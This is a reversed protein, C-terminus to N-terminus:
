RSINVTDEFYQFPTPGPLGHGGVFWQIDLGLPILSDYFDVAWADFQAPLQFPLGPNYVDSMFVTDSDPLYAILNDGAHVNPVSIIRVVNNSDSIEIEGAVPVVEISTERPHIALRDPQVTHPANLIERLNDQVGDATIVTAGAAAYSRVGGIHDHHFHTAVVYRFPKAPWLQKASAIIADSRSNYLVPDFLVLFEDMEVILSNHSGGVVHFVNEGVPLFQVTFPRSQDFDFPVGMALMRAFWQSSRDGWAFQDPEFPKILTEPIAFLSDALPENFSIETRTEDNIITGNFRYRVQYPAKIKGAKRWDGFIVELLSDGFVADDELTETKSPLKSTSDIYVKVREHLGQMSVVHHRRGRFKVSGEYRLSQRNALAHRVLYAPSSMLHQKLRMALRTSFMPSFELAPPFFTEVGFTAGFDGNIVEAHSRDAVWPYLIENEWEIRYRQGMFDRRHVRKYNAVTVPTEGPHASQEPEYRSGSSVVRESTISSIRRMGGMADIMHMVLTVAKNDGRTADTGSKSHSVPSFLLLSLSIFSVIGLYRM